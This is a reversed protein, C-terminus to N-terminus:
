EFQSRLDDLKNRLADEVIGAIVSELDLGLVRALTNWDNSLEDDLEIEIKM